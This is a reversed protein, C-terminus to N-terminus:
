STNQTYFVQAGTITPPNKLDGLFSIIDDIAIEDM